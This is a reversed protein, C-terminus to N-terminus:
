RGLPFILRSRKQEKGRFSFGGVPQREPANADAKEDPAVANAEARPPAAKPDKGIVILCVVTIAVAIGSVQLTKM